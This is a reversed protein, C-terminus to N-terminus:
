DRLYWRTGVRQFSVRRHGDVPSALRITAATGTTNFEAPIGHAADLVKALMALRGSSEIAKAAKELTGFKVTLEELEDPRVFRRIFTEADGSRLVSSADLVLTALEAQMRPRGSVQADTAECAVLIGVFMLITLTTM